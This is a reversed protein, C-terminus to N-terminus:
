FESRKQKRYAQPTLGTQEKFTSSFLSYSAFGLQAAISTVSDTSNKLRDKGEEMRIDTLKQRFTTNYMKQLIRNTQRPSLRLESALDEITLGSRYQDFFADIIMGRKDYAIRRPITYASQTGPAAARILNVFLQNFCSQLKTYYGIPRNELEQNIDTLLRYNEGTDEMCFYSVEALASKLAEVENAPFFLEHENLETYTFRITFKRLQSGKDPIVAHYIGPPIVYCYHPQLEVELRDMVLKGKGEIVFHIEYVSHNHRNFLSPANALRFTDDLVIDFLLPGIRTKINYNEPSDHKMM